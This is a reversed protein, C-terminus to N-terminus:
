RVNKDSKKDKRNFRFCAPLNVSKLLQGITLPVLSMTFVLVWGDLGPDVVSLVNAIWPVYVGALLLGACIGLAGWIYPNRVLKNHLFSSGQTRMNFVHWLQSFALTLFSITVAGSSDKGFWTLALAFAALVATTILASYGSIAFWHRRTLIPEKPDRPPLEMIAPDGESVGLALAPFVDTVLNLFLIQLPTVPLQINIVSAVAIVAIESVNCSLLYLVFNRINSFIVRGQRVAIVLTSFADDKLVMDAAERAVQTGRKGMAIGIDAKKLAPADNVGDGTMAVINGNSQYVKVLELKQKPNVRALITAKPISASSQDNTGGDFNEFDRGHIVDAEEDQVLGVDRGVQRATVPQDGTVMVVQIGAQLCAQISESVDKRPPDTLGALGLFTLKRYPKAELTETSKTAFALMRLGEAAMQENRDLWQQRDTVSLKKHGDPTLISTSADLVDKPAGKVAVRYHTNERHFTAMMRVDPDFADEQAEPMKEILDQRNVGAKAGAVLLAIEMPEGVATNKEPSDGLKLSANNCLVGTELLRNLVKHENPDITKGEQRFNGQTAFGEGDINVTGTELVVRIVTMRNETLTGTKDTCIVTTAGLTEVASLRNVLANRNAMRRMGNALAITAVIPLGEPVTAVALAIATEVMRIWEKGSLIGVVAVIITIALTAWILKQGLRDLRKELPTVDSEAEEVLSSINGLETAMGTAVVIGKGTGRTVATGKFLMNTREALVADPEVPEVQKSVPVSEGTLASEDTQMKSAEFLRVDATVVDGGELVLIDGPVVKKAQIEQLQGERLVKARVNSLERLAEMSRVAKLETLFGIVTNILIVVAIAVGEVLDGFLISLIAAVALLLVLLNKFQDLLILWASKTKAVRLRNPGHYELRRKAEASSLGEETSTERKGEIEEWSKAWPSNKSRQNMKM